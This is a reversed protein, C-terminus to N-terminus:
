RTNVYQRVRSRKKNKLLKDKPEYFTLKQAAFSPRKGHLLKGKAVRFTLKQLILNVPVSM